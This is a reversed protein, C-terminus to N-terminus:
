AMECFINWHTRYYEPIPLSNRELYRCYTICSVPTDGHTEPFIYKRNLFAAAFAWSDMYDLRAHDVLSVDDGLPKDKSPNVLYKLCTEKDGKLSDVQIRGWEGSVDDPKDTVLHCKMDSHFNFWKISRHQKKWKLFLHIHHGAQDPYPELSIVSWEPKQDAVFTELIQKAQPKVNHIVISFGYSKFNPFNSKPRPM